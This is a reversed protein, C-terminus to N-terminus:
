YRWKYDCWRWRVSLQIVRIGKLVHDALPFLYLAHFFFLVMAVVEAEMKRLGPFADPHIPNTVGFREFAETQLNLLDKGGHYVAGSIRGDEWRVHEMNGLRDLEGRVQEATWGEKPLTLYKTVGPGSVVLKSELGDLATTVQKDVKGRVVPARLFLSYCYLRM